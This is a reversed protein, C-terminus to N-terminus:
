TGESDRSRVHAVVHDGTKDESRTVVAVVEAVLLRGRPRDLFPDIFNRIRRSNV